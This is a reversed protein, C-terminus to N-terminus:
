TITSGSWALLRHAFDPVVDRRLPHAVEEFGDLRPAELVWGDSRQVLTIPTEFEGRETEVFLRTDGESGVVEALRKILLQKPDPHASTHGRLTQWIHIAESITGHWSHIGRRVDFIYWLGVPTHRRLIAIEPVYFREILESVDEM